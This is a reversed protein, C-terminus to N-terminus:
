NGNKGRAQKIAYGLHHRAYSTFGEQLSKMMWDAEARSLVVAGADVLKKCLRNAEIECLSIQYAKVKAIAHEDPVFERAPVQGSIIALTEAESM